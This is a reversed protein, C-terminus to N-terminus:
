EIRGTAPNFRRRPVPNEAPVPTPAANVQPVNVAGPSMSARVRLKEAGARVADMFDRLAQRFDEVSLARDMRAMADEAKKGEVETIQGGGKLMQYAELFTRGKLQNFRALADRGEAGMTWSPRFQDVPGVIASLGPHNYLEMAQEITRDASSVDADVRAAAEGVAKGAEAGAAKDFSERYNEKPMTGVLQGSRKDLLGWHTGLDMKDVGTSIEFGPTEIRKFTGDTGMTGLVTEGTVPDKGYIPNLGYRTEDGASKSRLVQQLLVPNQAVTMADEPTMGHNRVLWEATKNKQQEAAMKERYAAMQQGAGAFGGAMDGRMMGAGLAILAEPNNQRMYNFRDLLGGMTGPQRAVAEPSVVPFGGAPTVPMSPSMPNFAPHSGFNFVSM